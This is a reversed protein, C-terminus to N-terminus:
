SYVTKGNVPLTDRVMGPYIISLDIFILIVQLCTNKKELVFFKILSM